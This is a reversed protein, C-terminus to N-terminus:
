NEKRNRNRTKVPAMGVAARAANVAAVAEDKTDYSGLCVRTGAIWTMAQHPKSTVIELNDRRNNLKNGDKHRFRTTRFISPEQNRELREYTTGNCHILEGAGTYLWAVVPAPRNWRDVMLIHHPYPKPNVQVPLREGRHHWDYILEVAEHFTGADPSFVLFNVKTKARDQRRRKVTGPHDRPTFPSQTMELKQLLNHLPNCDIM